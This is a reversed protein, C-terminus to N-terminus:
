HEAPVEDVALRGLLGARQLVELTLAELAEQREDGDFFEAALQDHDDLLREERAVEEDAQVGALLAPAPVRDAGGGPDAPQDGEPLDGGLDVVLQHVGDTGRDQAFAHALAVELRPLKRM